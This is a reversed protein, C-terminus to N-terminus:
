WFARERRSTTIRDNGLWPSYDGSSRPTTADRDHCSFSIRLLDHDRRQDAVGTDGDRLEDRGPQGAAHGHQGLAHVRHRVRRVLREEQEAHRERLLPRRREVRETAVALAVKPREDDREHEEEEAPHKRDSSPVCLSSWASSAGLEGSTGKITSPTDIPSSALLKVTAIRSNLLCRPLRRIQSARNEPFSGVM